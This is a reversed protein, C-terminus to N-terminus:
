SHVLVLKGVSIQYKPVDGLARTIIDSTSAIITSNNVVCRWLPRRENRLAWLGGTWLFVGAFSGTLSNVFEAPDRGQQLIRAFIEGDNESSCKVGFQEFWEQSPAMSIVGNVAVAIDPAIYIPQNNNENHWDGSTSYRNHYILRVSRNKLHRFEDITPIQVCKRVEIPQNDIQYALGFAHLGRIKSENILSLTMEISKEDFKQSVLAIVGCM